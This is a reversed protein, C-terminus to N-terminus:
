LSVLHVTYLGLYPFHTSKDLKVTRKGNRGTPKHASMCDGMAYGSKVRNV